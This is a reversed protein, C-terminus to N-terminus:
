RYQRRRALWDHFAVGSSSHAGRPGPPVAAGTRAPSPAPNTTDSTNASGAAAPSPAPETAQTPLGLRRLERRRREALRARIPDPPPNTMSGM